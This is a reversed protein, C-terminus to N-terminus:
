TCPVSSQGPQMRDAACGWCLSGGRHRCDILSLTPLASKIYGIHHSFFDFGTTVDDESPPPQLAVPLATPCKANHMRNRFGVHLARQGSGMLRSFM